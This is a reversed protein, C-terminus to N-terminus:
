DVDFRSLIAAPRKRITNWVPILGILINFIYVAIITAILLPIPMYYLLDLYKISKVLYRECYDMILMAPLSTLTTIAIIEGVFMKYIDTKKAGIARLTGVEKIRSLFSSRTILMMEVLSIILIAVGFITSSRVEAAREKDYDAKEKAELDTANFGESKLSEVFATKDDQDVALYFYKASSILDLKVTNANTFFLSSYDDDLNEEYYGTVKLKKGNVTIDCEKGIEFAGYQSSPLIVEYDNKPLKSKKDDVLKIKDKYLEYNYLYRDEETEIQVFFGEGEESDLNFSVQLATYLESSDFYYSPSGLNVIGVLKYTVTDLTSEFERGLFDSANRIDIGVLQPNALLVIDLLQKDIVIERSSKPMRGEIIDEESILDLSAISGNPSVQDYTSQYYDDLTCRLSVKGKSTPIIYKVGDVKSLKDMTKKKDKDPAKVSIYHQNSKIYDSEEVHYIVAIHGVAFIIFFGSLFFGLLLLKKLISFSFIKKFGVFIAKFINFLSSYKKKINPNGVSDINFDFDEIDEDVIDKKFDDIVDISSNEDIVEVNARDRSQIYINGNSVIINLNLKESDDGFFHIDRGSKNSYYEHKEFSKLYFVNDIDYNLAETHENTRDSVVSGDVVDIIRDAYFEALPREHTVLIVLRDKSIKKIIKMIEVSNKSDLNGTPEDALIIDPNKVLARAIGVRQREGGSLTGAPRKRYRLIGVKDLVYDIRAKQEAQSKIGVMTLAMAVNDYVTMDDMLKYDQFIYGVNLNRIKDVAYTNRTSIKQDNIYISGSNITDLGGIANLMTTKGCGSEGLLAILGNDPLSLTTNNIAHIENKRGKNFYKNVEKIEIM